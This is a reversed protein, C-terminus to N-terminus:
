RQHHGEMKAEPTRKREKWNNGHEVAKKWSLEGGEEECSWVMEVKSKQM